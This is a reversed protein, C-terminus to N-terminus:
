APNRLRTRAGANRRAAPGCRKWVFFAFVVGHVTSPGLEVLSKRCSRSGESSAFDIKVRRAFCPCVPMMAIRTLMPRWPWTPGMETACLGQMSMQCRLRRVAAARAPKADASGAPAHRPGLSIDVHRCGQCAVARRGDGPIAAAPRAWPDLEISPFDHDLVGVRLGAFPQHSLREAGDIAVRQVADELLQHFGAHDQLLGVLVIEGEHDRHHLVDRGPIESSAM